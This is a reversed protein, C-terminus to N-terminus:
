TAFTKLLLVTSIRMCFFNFCCMSLVETFSSRFKGTGNQRDASVMGLLEVGYIGDGICM